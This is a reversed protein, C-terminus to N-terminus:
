VKEEEKKKTKPNGKKDADNNFDPLQDPKYGRLIFELNQGNGARSFLEEEIADFNETGSLIKKIIHYTSKKDLEEFINAVVVETALRAPDEKLEYVRESYNKAKGDLYLINFYGGVEHNYVAADYASKILEITGEVIDFGDRRQKMTKRNMYKALSIEGVDKGRGRIEFPGSTLYLVPEQLSFGYSSMGSKKDYGLIITEYELVDDLPSIKPPVTAIETAKKKISEQKIEYKKGKDTFTGRNLDDRNFGYLSKLKTDIRKKFNDQFVNFVTNAVEEITEFPNKKNKEKFKGELNKKAKRTIDYCFSPTGATACIATMGLEDSMEETLLDTINDCFHIRRRRQLWYEEDSIIAGQHKNFKLACIVSM